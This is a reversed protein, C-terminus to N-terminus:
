PSRRTFTDIATVTWTAGGDLSWARETRFSTPTVDLYRVRVLATVGGVDDQAYFEGRGNTFAGVMPASVRGSEADVWYIRWRKARPDYTHLLSGAYRPAAGPLVLEGLAARGAWVPRVVHTAGDSEIWEAGLPDKLRRRHMAWSGEEFAFDRPAGAANPTMGNPPADNPATQDADKTFTTVWNTEWTKGADDSFAQEIKFSTATIGSFIFRVFIPRGDLDEQDYFEGRGNAFGGVMAPGLVGDRSNAWHIRWQRAKADYVRLSLGEVHAGGGDVELEGLNARGGWVPRVISTGDLTVWTNSHTLPHLLRQLHVHWRGFEFDFDHAGDPRPQAALPTAATCLALALIVRYPTRM